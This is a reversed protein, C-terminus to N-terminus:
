AAQRTRLRRALAFLGALGGVLAGTEAPEPVAVLNGRIEGGANASTHVNIYFRGALLAVEDAELITVTGSFGGSTANANWGGLSDLPYKVSANQTFSGTGGSTTPGHIHGATANGTLDVFGNASGWGVNITLLNSVDDYSIGANIEGGIGPSGSIAGNENGSLLGSGGKGELDFQFSSAQAFGALLLFTSTVLSTKM